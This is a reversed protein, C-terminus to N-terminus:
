RLLMLRREIANLKSEVTSELDSMAERVGSISSELSDLEGSYDPVEPRAVMILLNSWLGLAVAAVLVKMVRDSAMWRQRIGEIRSM